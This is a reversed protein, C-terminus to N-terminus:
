TTQNANTNGKKLIKYTFSCPEAIVEFVDGVEFKFEDRIAKPVSITQNGLIKATITM